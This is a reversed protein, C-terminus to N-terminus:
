DAAAFKTRDKIIPCIIGNAGAVQRKMIQHDLLGHELDVTRSPEGVTLREM